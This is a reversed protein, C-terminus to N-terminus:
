GPNNLSSTTIVPSIYEGVQSALWTGRKGELAKEVNDHAETMSKYSEKLHQPIETDEDMSM